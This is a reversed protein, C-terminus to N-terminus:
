GPQGPRAARIPVVRARDAGNAVATRLYEGLRPDCSHAVNFRLYDRFRGNSSFMSGKAILIDRTLADRVLADADVLGPLCGWLFVGEGGPHDLVVGADGLLAQSRQRATALRARLQQVHRQYRGSDLVAEVIAETLGPTGLVGLVKQGVLAETAERPVAMFGVRLAPSLLKTFSSVYYVNRLEDLAALRTSGKAAIDGYVDDEVIGIGHREAISLLRHCKAASTSGGTPNHLLTQTVFLKPRHKRAVEEFEDLDPGDAHRTVPVLHLDLAKIHQFLVMYGPDEVAIVDGPRALTRFLLDLAQTTGLTTIIQGPAAMVGASRLHESLQRRLGPAGQAPSTAMLANRGKAVRTVLGAPVADTLWDEPLFGTGSRIMASSGDLAQMAFGLADAPDGIVGPSEGHMAKSRAAVVFYGAGPRSLLLNRAILRDYGAVVTFASVGLRTAMQRVSPLRFGDSLEGRLVLAALGDAIQEALPAGGSRQLEIM